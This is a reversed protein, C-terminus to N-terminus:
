GETVPQTATANLEDLWRRTVEFPHSWGIDLMLDHGMGPFEVLKARYRRATRTARRLSGESGGHGRLSVAFAPYGAEAAAPLWHEWCWAGHGLGHAFLLNPRSTAGQPTRRRVELRPDPM